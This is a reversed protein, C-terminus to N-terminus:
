FTIVVPLGLLVFAEEIFLKNEEVQLFDDKVFDYYFENLSGLVIFNKNESIKGKSAKKIEERYPSGINLSEHWSCIVSAEFISRDRFPSEKLIFHRLEDQLAEPGHILAVPLRDENLDSLQAAAQQIIRFNLKKAKIVHAAAAVLKLKDLEREKQLVAAAEELTGTIETEYRKFKPQYFYHKQGDVVYPEVSIMPSDCFRVNGFYFNQKDGGYIFDKKIEEM